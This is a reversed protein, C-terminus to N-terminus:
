RYVRSVSINFKHEYVIKQSIYMNKMRIKLFSLTSYKLNLINGSFSRSAPGEEEEEM